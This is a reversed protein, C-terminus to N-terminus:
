ESPSWYHDLEKALAENRHSTDRGINIGYCGNYGILSDKYCNPARIGQFSASKNENTNTAVADNTQIEMPQDHHSESMTPKNHQIQVVLQQQIEPGKDFM